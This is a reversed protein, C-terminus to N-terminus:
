RTGVDLILPAIGRSWRYSKLAKSTVEGVVVADQMLIAGGAKMINPSIFIAIHPRSEYCHGLIKM